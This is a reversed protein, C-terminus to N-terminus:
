KNKNIVVKVEKKDEKCWLYLVGETDESVKGIIKKKGRKLCLPCYIEKKM